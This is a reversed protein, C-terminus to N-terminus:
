TPWQAAEAAAKAAKADAASKVGQKATLRAREIQLSLAAFAAYKQLVLQACEWLTAAEIGVSASLTPFQAERSTQSLANAAAEGMAQVGQSQEFKERYVLQMGDGPSVYRLRVQEATADIERALRVKLVDLPEVYPALAGGDYVYGAECPEDTEILVCDLPWLTSPDSSVCVVRNGRVQAFTKGTSGADSIGYWDDGAANKLFLGNAALRATLLDNGKDPKPAYISFLGHDTIM